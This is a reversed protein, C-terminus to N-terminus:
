LTKTYEENKIIEGYEIDIKLNKCLTEINNKIEIIKAYPLWGLHIVKRKNSKKYFAVYTPGIKVRKISQWLIAIPARRYYGLQYELVTTDANIYLNTKQGQFAFYIYAAVYFGLLIYTWENRVNNIYLIGYTILMLFLLVFSIILLYKKLRDEKASSKNLNINFSEM